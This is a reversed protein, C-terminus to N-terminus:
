ITNVQNKHRRLYWCPDQWNQPFLSISCAVDVSGLYDLEQKNNKLPASLFNSVTVKATPSGRLKFVAWDCAYAVVCAVVLGLLTWQLWRMM